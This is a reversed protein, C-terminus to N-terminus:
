EAETALDLGKRISVYMLLAQMHVTDVSVGLERCVVAVSSLM